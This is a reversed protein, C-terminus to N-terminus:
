KKSKKLRIIRVIFVTVEYGFLLSGIVMPTNDHVLWIPTHIYVTQMHLIRMVLFSIYVFSSIYFAPLGVILFEAVAIKKTMEYRSSIIILISFIAGILMSLLITVILTCDFLCLSRMVLDEIWISGLYYIYLSLLFSINWIIYFSIKKKM